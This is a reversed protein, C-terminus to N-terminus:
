VRNEYLDVISSWPADTRFSPEGYHSVEASHGMSKLGEAMKLPSPPGGGGLFGPLSDTVVLHTGHIANAEKAINRVARRAYKRDRICM